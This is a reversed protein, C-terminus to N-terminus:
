GRKENEIKKAKKKIRRLIVRKSKGKKQKEGEKRGEREYGGGNNEKGRKNKGKM